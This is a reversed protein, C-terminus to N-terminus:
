NTRLSDVGEYEQEGGLLKLYYDEVSQGKIATAEDVEILHGHSLFVYHTAVKSLEDLNHSSVVVTKRWDRNASMLLRRMGIVGLPDLGNFPEDLLLLDPNGLLAIGFDLRRKMGLSLHKVPIGDARDLGVLEAVKDVSPTEPVGWEACRARLNDRVSMNLWSSFGDPMYGIRRRARRLGDASTEGFIAVSGSTQKILGLIIRLLTTKGAGNEGVLAYIGGRQVSLNIGELATKKGYRKSLDSADIIAENM